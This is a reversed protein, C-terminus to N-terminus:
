GASARANDDGDGNDDNGDNDGGEEIVAASLSTMLAKDLRPPAGIRLVYREINQM